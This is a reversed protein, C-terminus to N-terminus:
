LSIELMTCIVWRLCSNSFFSLSLSVFLCFFLARPDVNRHDSFHVRVLFCSASYLVPLPVFNLQVSILFPSLSFIFPFEAPFIVLRHLRLIHLRVSITMNDQQTSYRYVELLKSMLKNWEEMGRRTVSEMYCIDHGIEFLAYSLRELYRLLMSEAVLYDIFFSDLLTLFFDSCLDCCM